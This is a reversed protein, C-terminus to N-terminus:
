GGVPEGERGMLSSTLPSLNLRYVKFDAFGLRQAHPRAPSYVLELDPAGRLSPYWDPFFAIYGAGRSAAWRLLAHPDHRYPLAAPDLLGATDVIRRGSFYAMAGIDHTAITADEPTHGRVWHAAAVQEDQIWQVDRAYRLSGHAWLLLSGALALAVYVGALRRLPLRRWLREGGASGLVVLCPLAPLLYRGYHYLVPLRWAYIAVLLAPWLGLLWWGAATPVAGTGLTTGAEGPQGHHGSPPVLSPPMLWWTLGALVFLAPGSALALAAQGTFGAVGALSVSHGYAVIKAGATVPLVSGGLLVNLVVAPAALLAATFIMQAATAALRVTSLGSRRGCRLLQGTALAALLMGEPRVLFTLGGLLGVLWARQQAITAWIMLTTIVMFPVTEMGSAAAWSVRWDLVIAVASILAARPQSPFLARTLGWTAVALAGASCAGLVMTWPLPPLHFAYGAAILATWLPSTSLTVPEGPNLAWEGHQALHRALTQHIWADDLPFGANGSLWAGITAYLGVSLAGALAAWWPVARAPTVGFARQHPM